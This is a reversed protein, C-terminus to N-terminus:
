TLLAKKESSFFCFVKTEESAALDRPDAGCLGLAIRAVAHSLKTNLNAAADIKLNRSTQILL